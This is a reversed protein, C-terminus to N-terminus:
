RGADAIMKQTAGDMLRMAREYAEFQRQITVMSVM